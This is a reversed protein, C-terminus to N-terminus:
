DSATAIVEPVMQGRQRMLAELATVAQATLEFSRRSYRPGAQLYGKAVLPQIYPKLNTTEGLALASRIDALSPAFGQQLIHTAITVLVDGQRKTLAPLPQLRAVM